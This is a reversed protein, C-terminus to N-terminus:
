PQGSGGNAFRHLPTRGFLIDPWYKMPNCLRKWWSDEPLNHRLLDADYADAGVEMDSKTLTGSIVWPLYLAQHTPRVGHSEMFGRALRRIVARNAETNSPTGMVAKVRAILERLYNGRARRRRAPLSRVYHYVPQGTDDRHVVGPENGVNRPDLATPIVVLEAVADVVDEERYDVLRQALKYHKARRRWDGGTARRVVELGIVIVSAAIAYKFDPMKGVAFIIM